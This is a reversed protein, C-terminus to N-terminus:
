DDTVLKSNASSVVLQVRNIADEEVVPHLSLSYSLDDTVEM